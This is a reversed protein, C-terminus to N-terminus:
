FASWPVYPPQVQAGLLSKFIPGSPPFVYKWDNGTWAMTMQDSQLGGQPGQVVVDLQAQSSSYSDYKYGVIQVGIQSDDSSPQTTVASPVDISLEDYVKREPLNTTGEGVLNMAALLAGSPNHAFCVNIRNQVHQPGLPPSQPVSMTGVVQWTVGSPPVGSPVEQGGAALSCLGLNAAASTTTGAPSTQAGKPHNTTATKPSAGHHFIAIAIGVALLMLVFLTSLQVSTSSWPSAPQDDHERTAM